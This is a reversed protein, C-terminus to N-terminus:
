PALRFVTSLSVSTIIEGADIFDPADDEEYRRNMLPSSDNLMNDCSIYRDSYTDHTFGSLIDAHDLGAVKLGFAKAAVSADFQAAEVAAELAKKREERRLSDSLQFSVNSIETAGNKRALTLLKAIEGVRGSEVFITTSVVAITEGYKWIGRKDHYTYHSYSFSTTRVLDQEGAWGKVAQLVKEADKSVEDYCVDDDPHEKSIEFQVSFYDPKARSVGRGYGELYTEGHRSTEKAM